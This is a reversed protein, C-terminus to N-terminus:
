VFQELVVDTDKFCFYCLKAFDPNTEQFQVYQDQDVGICWVDDNKSCSEIVGTGLGGAVQWIVDCGADILSDTVKSGLLQDTFSGPFSIAYLVGEDALIQCYGSIFQNMAPIDMGVVVGVKGTNTLKASLAGVVYGLDDLGYSVVYCNAPNEIAWSKDFNMFMQDPYKECAEALFGEYTPNGSVVLDYQGDECVEAYANAWLTQNATGNPDVEILDVQIEDGHETNVKKVGNALTDFYSQDGTFPLLVAVKKKTVEGEEEVTKSCATM